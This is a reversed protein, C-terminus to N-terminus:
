AVVQNKGRHKAQYLRKDAEALMREHNELSLDSCVGVSLTVRLEPHLTHWPYAEVVARLKECAARAQAADAGPLLLAFEEGGYRAVVDAPRAHERLLRAVGKLVEDGVMHSLHDNIRKFNDLDCLAVSLPRGHRRSHEFERALAEDLYRRNFLGTLGDELAMRELRQLLAGKQRDSEKLAAHLAELEAYARALEANKRRELEAERRAQELGFSVQLNKLKRGSAEDFVERELRRGAELHGLAAEFDGRQKHLEALALRAEAEKPRNVSARSLEEAQLLLPGAEDLRGQAVYFRGLCLVTEVALAPFEKGQLLECAQRHCAEAEELRGLKELVLGLNSLVAGRMRREPPASLSLAERLVGEAEELRGLNKLNIGMNSLAAAGELPRGLRRHAEYARRYYELGEEPHGSRSYVIGISNLARAEAAPDGLRTFLELSDIFHALAREFDGLSDYVIGMGRLCRATNALDRGAEFLALAQRFAELAQAPDGLATHAYGQELWATGELGAEGLAGALERAEQAAALHGAPDRDGQAECWELLLRLRERPESAQGPRPSLEPTDSSM